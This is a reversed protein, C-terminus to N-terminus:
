DNNQRELRDAEARLEAALEAANGVRFYLETTTYCQGGQNCQYKVRPVYRDAPIVRSVRGITKKESLDYLVEGVEYTAIEKSLWGVYTTLKEEADKFAAQLRELEAQEEANLERQNV